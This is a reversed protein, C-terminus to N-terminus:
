RRVGYLLPQNNHINTVNLVNSTYLCRLKSRLCRFNRDMGTNISDYTHTRTINEPRTLFELIYYDCSNRSYGDLITYRSRPINPQIPQQRLDNDLDSDSDSDSDSNFDYYSPLQQPQQRNPNNMNRCENRLEISVTRGRCLPCLFTSLNMNNSYVCKIYCSHNMKHGCNFIVLDKDTSLEELCICCIDKEVPKVTFSQQHEITLKHRPQIVPNDLPINSQQELMNLRRMISTLQNTNM